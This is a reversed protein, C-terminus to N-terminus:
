VMRRGILTGKTGGAVYEFSFNPWNRRWRRAVLREGPRAADDLIVVGGPAIRDFLLEAGGRTLPHITWPPGDIVVLDIGDPLKGHDYWVGPWGPARVLPASRLEAGLGYEDLWRRTAAVFDAHQDFAIHRGGGALALARAIILTSAGAGFEVVIRPRAREIHDALLTLLHVDAKWRGLHPLAGHSLGLRDLLAHKDALRGGWLSRLLWPWQILAFGCFALWNTLRDVLPLAAFDVPKPMLATRDRSTM